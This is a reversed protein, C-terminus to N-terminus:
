GPEAIGGLEDCPGQRDEIPRDRLGEDDVVGQLEEAPRRAGGMAGSASSIITWDASKAPRDKDEDRDASKKAAVPAVM